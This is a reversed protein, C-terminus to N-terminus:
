HLSVGATRRLLSFRRRAEYEFYTQDISGGCTPVTRDLLADRTSIDESVMESWIPTARSCRM